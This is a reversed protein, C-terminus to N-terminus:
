FQTQGNIKEDFLSVFQPLLEPDLLKIRRKLENNRIELEEWTLDIGRSSIIGYRDFGLGSHNDYYDIINGNEDKFFKRVRVAIPSNDKFRVAIDHKKEGYKEEIFLNLDDSSMPWDSPSSINNIIAVVWWYKVYGYHNHAVMEITENDKIIYDRFSPNGQILDEIVIASKVIDTVLRGDYEIAGLKEFYM